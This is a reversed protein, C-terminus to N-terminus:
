MTKHCILPYLYFVAIARLFYKSFKLFKHKNVQPDTFTMYLEEASCKFEENLKLTTTDIKVGIQINKLNEQNVQNQHQVKPSAVQVVFPSVFVLYLLGIAIVHLKM